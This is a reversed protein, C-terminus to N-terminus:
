RVLPLGLEPLQGSRAAHLPRVDNLINTMQRRV